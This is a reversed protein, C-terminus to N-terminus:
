LDDYDSSQMGHILWGSLDQYKEDDDEQSKVNEVSYNGYHCCHM